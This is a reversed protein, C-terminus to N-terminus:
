NGLKNAFSSYITSIDDLRGKYRSTIDEVKEDFKDKAEDELERKMDDAADQLEDKLDDAKRRIEHIADNKETDLSDLIERKARIAALQVVEKDFKDINVDKVQDYLKTKIEPAHKAVEADIDNKIRTITEQKINDVAKNVATPVTKNLSREAMSTVVEDILQDSVSITTKAEIEDLSANLRNCLRNVKSLAATAMAVAITAVGAFAGGIIVM